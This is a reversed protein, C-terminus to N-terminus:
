RVPTTPCPSLKNRFNRKRVPVPAYPNGIGLRALLMIEQNEMLRADLQRHHDYGLLHLIGHIALHAAHAAVSKGQESAERSVVAYALAVDGLYPAAQPLAPFALVNTPKKKKRFAANLQQVYEDSSLLLSAAPVEIRQANGAPPASAAVQAARRITPILSDDKRWASEEVIISIEPRRSAGRNAHVAM